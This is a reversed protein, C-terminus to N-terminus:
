SGPQAVCLYGGGRIPYGDSGRAYPHYGIPVYKMGDGDLCRCFERGAASEEALPQFSAANWWVLKKFEPPEHVLQPAIGAPNSGVRGTDTDLGPIATACGALIGAFGVTLLHIRASRYTM